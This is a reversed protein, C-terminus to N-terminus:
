PGSAFLNIRELWVVNGGLETPLWPPSASWNTLNWFVGSGFKFKNPFNPSPSKQFLYRVDKVDCKMKGLAQWGVDRWITAIFIWGTTAKGTIQQHPWVVDSQAKLGVFLAVKRHGWKQACGDWTRHMQNWSSDPKWKRVTYNLQKNATISFRNEITALGAPHFPRKGASRPLQLQKCNTPSPFSRSSGWNRRVQRWKIRCQPTMLMCTVM